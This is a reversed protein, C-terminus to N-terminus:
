QGSATYDRIQYPAKDTFTFFFTTKGEGAWTEGDATAWQWTATVAISNQEHHATEIKVNPHSTAKKAAANLWEEGTAPREPAIVEKAREATMLKRARMQADTRNFDKAPNWTTMIKAAELALAVKAPDESAHGEGHVGSSPSPSATATPAPTSAPAPGPENDPSNCAALSLTIGVLASTIM